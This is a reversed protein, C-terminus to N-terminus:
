KQQGYIIRWYNGLSLTLANKNATQLPTVLFQRGWSQRSSALRSSPLEQNQNQPFSSWLLLRQNQNQPFVLAAFFFFTCNKLLLIPRQWNLNAGWTRENGWTTCHQMPHHIFYVCITCHQRMLHYLMCINYLQRRHHIFCVYTHQAIYIWEQRVICPPLLKALGCVGSDLPKGYNKCKQAQLISVFVLMRLFDQFGEFKEWGTVIKKFHKIHLLHDTINITCHLTREIGSWTRENGWRPRARGQLISRQQCRICDSLYVLLWVNLIMVTLNPWKFVEEKRNFESFKWGSDLHFVVLYM